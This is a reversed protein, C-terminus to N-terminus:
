NECSARRMSLIRNVIRVVVPKLCEAVRDWEEDTLQDVIDPFKMHTASYFALHLDEHDRRTFIPELCLPAINTARYELLQEALVEMGAKIAKVMESTRVSGYREATQHLNEVVLATCIKILNKLKM